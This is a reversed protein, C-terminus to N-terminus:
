QLNYLPAAVWPLRSCTSRYPGCGHKQLPLVIAQLPQPHLTMGDAAKFSSQSVSPIFAQHTHPSLARNPLLSPCPKVLLFAQPPLRVLLVVKHSSGPAARQLCPPIQFKEPSPPPPPLNPCLTRMARKLGIVSHDLPSTEINLFHM